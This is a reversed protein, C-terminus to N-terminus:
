YQELNRHREIRLEAYEIDELYAVMCHDLEWFFLLDVFRCLRWWFRNKPNELTTIRKNTM